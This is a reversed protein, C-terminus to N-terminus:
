IDSVHVLRYTHIWTQVSGGPEEGEERGVERKAEYGPLFIRILIKGNFSDMYCRFTSLSTSLFFSMSLTFSGLSLFYFHNEQLLPLRCLERFITYFFVVTTVITNTEKLPWMKCQFRPPLFM